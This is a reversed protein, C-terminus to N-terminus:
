WYMFVHMNNLLSLMVLKSTILIHLNILPWHETWEAINYRYGTCVGARLSIVGQVEETRDLPRYIFLLWKFALSMM